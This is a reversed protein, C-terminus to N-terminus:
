HPSEAVKKQYADHGLLAGLDTAADNMRVKILWGKDYPDSALIHIDAAVADNVAVVEGGVPAYLDSVAKVSEIEGFSKGRALRTGVKPLEILILDTLQEVAFASIGVTAVDGDVAVWEHTPLFKLTKPDM